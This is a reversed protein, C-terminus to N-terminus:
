LAIAILVVVIVLGAILPWIPGDSRMSQKTAAAATHLARTADRRLKAYDVSKVKDTLDTLMQKQSRRKVSPPTSDTPHAQTAQPAPAAPADNVGLEQAREHHYEQGYTFSPNEVPRGTKNDIEITHWASTELHHDVPVQLEAPDTGSYQEAAFRPSVGAQPPREPSAVTSRSPARGAAIQQAQLREALRQQKKLLREQKKEHHRHKLQEYGGRKLAQALLGKRRAATEASYLEDEVTQRARYGETVPVAPEATRLQAEQRYQRFVEAPELPRVDQAVPAEPVQPAPGTETSRVPSAEQVIPQSAPVEATTAASVSVADHQEARVQYTIPPAAPEQESRVLQPAAPATESQLEHLPVVHEAVPGELSILGEGQSLENEHVAYGHVETQEPVQLAKERERPVQEPEPVQEPPSVSESPEPTAHQHRQARIVEEFDIAGEDQRPGGWEETTREVKPPQKPATEPAFRQPKEAEVKRNELALEALPVVPKAREVHREPSTNREIPLPVSVSRRKKRRNRRNKREPHEPAAAPIPSSEHEM